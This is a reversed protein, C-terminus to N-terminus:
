DLRSIKPVGEIIYCAGNISTGLKKLALHMAAKWSSDVRDGFVANPVTCQMIKGNEHISKCQCEFTLFYLNDKWWFFHM